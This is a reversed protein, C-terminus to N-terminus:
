GGGSKQKHLDSVMDRIKGQERDLKEIGRLVFPMQASLKEIGKETTHIEEKVGIITSYCTEVVIWTSAVAVALFAIAGWTVGRQWVHKEKCERETMLKEPPSM